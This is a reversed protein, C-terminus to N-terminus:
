RSSTPVCGRHTRGNVFVNVIKDTVIKDTSSLSEFKVIEILVQFKSPM